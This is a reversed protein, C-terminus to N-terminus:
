RPEGSGRPLSLDRMPRVGSGRFDSAIGLGLVKELEVEQVMRLERRHRVCAFDPHRTESMSPFPLRAMPLLRLGLLAFESRGNTFM